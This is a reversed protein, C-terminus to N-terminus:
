QTSCAAGADDLKHSGYAVQVLLHQGDAVLYGRGPAAEVLERRPLTVAFLDGDLDLQPRLLLGLRSRRVLQTWHGYASRLGDPRAAIVLRTRDRQVLRAMVGGSDEILDADDVFVAVAREADLVDVHAALEAVNVFSCDFRADTTLSSRRATLAVLHVGADLGASLDADDIAADIAAAILALASTRGSRPPGCVLVHDGPHIVLCAPSLDRDAIGIALSWTGDADLRSAPLSSPAVVVPLTGIPPPTVPLPYSARDSGSRRTSRRGLAAVASALDAGPWALQVTLGSPQAVARGPPAGSAPPRRVGVLAADHQDALRFVWRQSIGSVMSLPVAGVRDASAAITVGVEPGAAVLQDLEDLVTFGAPGDFLSRLTGIGDILAVINPRSQRDREGDDRRREVENRLHAILRRLRERETARVVAGVNALRALPALDGVGMDMVYVHVRGAPEAALALALTALATTTGSGVTGFLLLHGAHREWGLPIQRQRDPDDALAVMGSPLSAPPIVASLPDLWPRRPPAFGLLDNAQRAADVAGALETTSVPALMLDDVVAEAARVAVGAPAFQRVDVLATRNARGPGTCRASQVVVREDTGTRIVARGPASRAIRAASTDGVVDSSEAGDLVRLAIRLNTNARIDDSVAAGPRQTALVLHVGLSRGRQAIGVLASLFTPLEAALAAFEDIVVVLRALPPVGDIARYAVLDSAGHARLETERHRLEAELSRLARDALADDLDTVLGCVHPLAACIDFASGGKYDILVFSVDTPRNALALGAILTRLLESKGSGTTGAVL